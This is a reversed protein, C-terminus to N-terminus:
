RARRGQEPRGLVAPHEGAFETEIWRTHVRFPESTFAPDSVVARHFPLVTPM